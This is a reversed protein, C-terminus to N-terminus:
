ELFCVACLQRFWCDPLLVELCETFPSGCARSVFAWIVQGPRAGLAVRVAIEASRESTIHSLVGYLGVMALFFALGAFSGLLGVPFYLGALDNEVVQNMTQFNFM